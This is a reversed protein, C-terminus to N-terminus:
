LHLYYYALLLLPHMFWAYVEEKSYFSDVVFLCMLVGLLQCALHCFIFGVVTFECYCYFGHYFDFPISPMSVHFVPHLGTGGNEVNVLAATSVRAELTQSLTPKTWIKIEKDIDFLPLFTPINNKESSVVGLQDSLGSIILGCGVM